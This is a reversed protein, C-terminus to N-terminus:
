LNLNRNFSVATPFFYHPGLFQMEYASSALHDLIFTKNNRINEDVYRLVCSPPMAPEPQLYYPSMMATSVIDEDAKLAASAYAINSPNAWVLYQVM